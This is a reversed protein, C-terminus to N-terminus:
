GGTEGYSLKSQDLVRILQILLDSREFAQVAIHVLSLVVVNTHGFQLRGRQHCRLLDLQHEGTVVQLLVGLHLPHRISHLARDALETVTGGLLGAQLLLLPLLARFLLFRM